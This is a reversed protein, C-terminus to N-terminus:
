PADGGGFAGAEALRDGHEAGVIGVDYNDGLEVAEGSGCAGARATRRASRQLNAMTARSLSTSVVVELPRRTVV